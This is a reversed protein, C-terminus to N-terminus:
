AGWTAELRECFWRGERFVLHAVHGEGCLPGCTLDVAVDARQGEVPPASVSADASLAVTAGLPHARGERWAEPRHFIPARGGRLCLAPMGPTFIFASPGREAFVALFATQLRAGLDDTPFGGPLLPCPDSADPVGDGDSDARDPATGLEAELADSWGDHDRDAGSPPCPQEWPTLCPAPRPTATMRAELDATVRGLAERTGLHVLAERAAEALGPEALAQTLVGTARGDQLQTFTDVFALRVRPDGLTPFRAVLADVTGVLQQARLAPLLIALRPEPLATVRAALLADYLGRRRERLMAVLAGSLTEEDGLPEELLADIQATDALTRLPALARDGALRASMEGDGFVVDGEVLRLLDAGGHIGLVRQLRGTQADVRVLATGREHRPSGRWLVSRADADLLPANREAGLTPDVAVSWAAAGTAPDLASLAGGEAHILRGGALRVDGLRLGPRSWRRAGTAPDLASLAGKEEVLVLDGLAALQRAQISSRWRAQGTRPDLGMVPEFVDDWPLAGTVTPVTAVLTDGVGAVKRCPGKWRTHGDDLDVADIEGGACLIATSATVAWAYFSGKTPHDFLRHGDRTSFALVRDKDPFILLREGGIAAQGDSGWFRLDTEQRWVVAGDGLSLAKVTVKRKAGREEDDVVFARDGSV